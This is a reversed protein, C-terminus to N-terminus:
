VHLSQIIDVKFDLLLQSVIASVCRRHTIVEWLLMVVHEGEKPHHGPEEMHTRMSLQSKSLGLM